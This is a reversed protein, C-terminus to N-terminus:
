GSYYILLMRDSFIKKSKIIKLLILALLLNPAEKKTSKAAEIKREKKRTLKMDRSIVSFSRVLVM